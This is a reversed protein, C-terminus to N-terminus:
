GGRVFYATYFFQDNFKCGYQRTTGVRHHPKTRRADESGCEGRARSARWLYKNSDGMPRINPTWTEVTLGVVEGDRIGLPQDLTIVTEPNFLGALRVVPSQATLKYRNSNRDRKLIGIRAAPNKGYRESGFLNQFFELNSVDNEGSGPPLRNSPKHGLTISWAVIKGNSPARMPGRRQGIKSVFGTVSGVAFCADAPKKGCTPKAKTASKGLVIVRAGSASSSLLGVALALVAIAIAAILPRYSIRM